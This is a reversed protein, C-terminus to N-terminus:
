RTLMRRRTRAPPVAASAVLHVVAEEHDDESLGDEVARRQEVRREALEQRLTGPHEVESDLPHHQEAGRDAKPRCLADISAALHHKGDRHDGSIWANTVM